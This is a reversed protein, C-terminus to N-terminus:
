RFHAMHHVYSIKNENTVSIAKGGPVLEHTVLQGLYDESSSFTLEIDCVDGEYHKIYTLNKYLEPDLSPLEDMFSYTSSYTRGLIQTLFFPAFPVDVVIGEYVAKGLMRGVFEFLTLHNDQIASTPSPYLKQDSTVKFLNLSPDFVRSITEELFEKFVGDQDIGAEDLGQANIFRVRIIGKLAGPPVLSLQRYGDEIIRARHVTVLTSTPSACVSETLGLVEKEKQVNKRFLIVREKHPIIHPTKQLLFQATKRGRDLEQLFTSPKIDRILWHKDPTFPRRCDREYLLMLLTHPSSFLPNSAATTVDILNNWVLKFIFQNLFSTMAVVNELKFPKQQEYLEVDDLIVILHSAADCFLTLMQFVPHHTNNPSSTLLEIFANLGCNPGFDCFFSWLNPLFLDQYSLGSLIFLCIM